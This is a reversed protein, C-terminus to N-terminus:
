SLKSTIYNQLNETTFQTKSEDSFEVIDIRTHAGYLARRILLILSTAGAVASAALLIIRQHRRFFSSRMQLGQLRSRKRIKKVPVTRFTPVAANM